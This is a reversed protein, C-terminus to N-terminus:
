NPVWNFRSDMWPFNPFNIHRFLTFNHLLKISICHHTCLQEPILCHHSIIHLSTYCQVKGSRTMIQLETSDQIWVHFILLISKGFNYFTKYNNYQLAIIHTKLTCLHELTPLSTKCQAKGSRIKLKSSLQIQFGSMSIRFNPFNIHRLLTFNHLLEISICHRTCFQEPILCHHAIIHLSTCHHTVSLKGQDQWLKSNLQIKFGCM